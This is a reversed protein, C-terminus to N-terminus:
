TNRGATRLLEKEAARCWAGGDLKAAVSPFRDALESLPTLPVDHLQPYVIIKGALTRNEVAHIGEIAGAMGSVADVSANTDLQGASLKELVIKMDRIVSGSTGFIFCRNAICAQLDIEAEVGAPIGAFVNIRADPLCHQVASAVLAPVPAMIAHYSYASDDPADKTNLVRLAVGNAQAPPGAKARLSELREGDLDTATVSVDKHGTAVDRLVHMQGMPGGAGVIVVSDGDRIEGDPPIARYSEAANSGTTGVWRCLGYHTRGISISVDREIREGGLVVNMIGGNALFAASGEISAASGGYFVVDDFEAGKPLHGLCRHTDFELGLENLQREQADDVVATIHSPPGDPSFSEVLGDIRRPDTCVVLLRGGAKVSQRERTVYSDEVCAWPEVLCIAAASPEEGVPILMSEGSAPDVIVREDMLVYEQLAGEFNYGFSGNSKGTPLWRYDTQVLYRGGVEAHRVKDGTAVIRVVTEHGPVTPADSPVYSPIEALVEPAIGSVIPLKRGHEGFQKLLKLDSFCLGVAEVKALVQHPGPRHVAKAANLRLEGPGVLQVAHQTHPIGAIEQNM